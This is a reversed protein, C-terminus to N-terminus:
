DGYGPIRKTIETNKVIKINVLYSGKIRDEVTLIKSTINTQGSLLISLLDVFTKLDNESAVANISLNLTDSYIQADLIQIAGNMSLIFENLYHQLDALSTTTNITLSLIEIYNQLDTINQISTITNTLTDEYSKLLTNVNSIETSNLVRNYVAMGQVVGDLQRTSVSDDGAIHFNTGNATATFDANDTGYSTLNYYGEVNPNGTEQVIGSIIQSLYATPTTNNNAQAGGGSIFRLFSATQNWSISRQSGETDFVQHIAISPTGSWHTYCSVFMSEASANRNNVCPYTLRDANRTSTSSGSPIYSTAFGKKEMQAGWLYYTGSTAATAPLMRFWVGTVGPGITVSAVARVWKTTIMTTTASGIVNFSQDMIQIQITTSSTTGRRIFVSCTLLDGQVVSPNNSMTVHSASNTITFESADQAGTPSELINSLRTVRFLSGAAANSNTCLNTGANEILLGPYYIFGFSRIYGRTFRPTNSAKNVKLYTKGALRWGVGTITM